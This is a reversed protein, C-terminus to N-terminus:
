FSFKGQYNFVLLTAYDYSLTEFTAYGLALRFKGTGGVVAVERVQEFQSSTGQIELTSGKYEDNIFIISILVHTNSGDLVSTVYIGQARAIQASSEEFGETIPDDRCFIAGFKTFSLLGNSQGTIELVTANPGGSYDQFYVTMQTEKMPGLKAKSFTFFALFLFISIKITM